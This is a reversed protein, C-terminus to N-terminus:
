PTGGGPGLRPTLAITARAAALRSRLRKPWLGMARLTEGQAAMRLAGDDSMPPLTRREPPARWPPAGDRLERALTGISGGDPFLRCADHTLLIATRLPAPGPTM